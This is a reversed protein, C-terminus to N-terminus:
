LFYHVVGDDIQALFTITVSNVRTSGLSNISSHFMEDTSADFQWSESSDENPHGWLLLVSIQTGTRQWRQGEPFAIGAQSCKGGEWIGGWREGKETQIFPKVSISCDKTVPAPGALGVEGKMWIVLGQHM